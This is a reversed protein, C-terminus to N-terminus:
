FFILIFIGCGFNIKINYDTLKVEEYFDGHDDIYSFSLLNYEKSFLSLLYDGQFFEILMLNLEKIVLQFQFIFYVAM